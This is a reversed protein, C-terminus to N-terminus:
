KVWTKLNVVRNITMPSVFYKQALESQTIQGKAYEARIANVHSQHLKRVPSCEGSLAPQKGRKKRTMDRMNETHTGLFLHEPNVCCRVDCHHLVHMGDPIPGNWLVWAVRHARKEGKAALIGYGLKTHAGRWYWCDSTDFALGEIFRAISSRKDNQNSKKVPSFVRGLVVAEPTEIM